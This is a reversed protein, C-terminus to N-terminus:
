ASGIQGGDYPFPNDFYKRISEFSIIMGPNSAGTHNWIEAWPGNKNHSWDVLTGAQVKAYKKICNELFDRADCELQSALVIKKGTRYDIKHLRDRIRQNSNNKFSHYIEPIVPGYEWASFKEVFLDNNFRAYYEGWVFYLIKQLQLNTIGVGITDAVDLVLNAIARSDNM